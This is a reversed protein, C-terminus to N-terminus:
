FFFQIGNFLTLGKSSIYKFVKQKIYLSIFLSIHPASVLSMYAQSSSPVMALRRSVFIIFYFLIKYYFCLFANLKRYLVWRVFYTQTITKLLLFLIVSLLSVTYVLGFYDLYFCIIPNTYHTCLQDYLTLFACCSLLM